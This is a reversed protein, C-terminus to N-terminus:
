VKPPVGPGVGGAFREGEIAKHLQLTDGWFAEDGFTDFRFTQRGEKVMQLANGLVIGQQDPRQAAFTPRASKLYVGAALLIIAIIATCLLKMGTGLQASM